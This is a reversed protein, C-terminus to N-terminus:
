PPPIVIVTLSVWIAPLIRTSSLKANVPPVKVISFSETKLPLREIVPPVSVRVPIINVKFPPIFQVFPAVIVPPVSSIGDPAVMIRLPSTPPALLRVILLTVTFM